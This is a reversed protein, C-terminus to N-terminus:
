PFCIVCVLLNRNKILPNLLIMKFLTDWLVFPTFSVNIFGEYSMESMHVGQEPWADVLTSGACTLVVWRKMGISSLYPTLPLKYSPYIFSFGPLFMSFLTSSILIIGVNRKHYKTHNPVMQVILFVHFVGM